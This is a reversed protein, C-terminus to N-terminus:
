ICLLLLIKITSRSLILTKSHHVQNEQLNLGIHTFHFYTCNRHITKDMKRHKRLIPGVELFPAVNSRDLFLM